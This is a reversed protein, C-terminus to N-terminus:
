REARAQDIRAEFSDESARLAAIAPLQEYDVPTSQNGMGDILAAPDLHHRAFVGVLNALAASATALSTQAQLADGRAGDIRVEALLLDSHDSIGARTRLE